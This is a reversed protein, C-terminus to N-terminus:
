QVVLKLHTQQDGMRINILYLGPALPDASLRQVSHSRIEMERNVVREGLCNFVEVVANGNVGSRVFVEGNESPNPFVQLAGDLNQVLGTFLDVVTAEVHDCGAADTVTVSYNGACLGTATAATQSSADDWAYSYPPTGGTVSVGATGDCTGNHDDTTLNSVSLNDSGVTATVPTRLSLCSPEQVEWDYFYYYYGSASTNTGTISAMGAVDIPYTAGANNRYLDITTGTVKIFYGTGPAVPFDLTVRSEGSPINVTTTQLVNGGDGDLLEITRNGAAGAYVKVSKLTFAASADFLLGRLDNNTFLGGGGLASDVPGGKVSAQSVLEQVYFTTTTTVSPGYTAGTGVKTGGTPADYWEYTGGNGSATLNATGSGCITDGTAAPGNPRNITVYSIKTISDQGYSNTVILKVTFSGNAEYTHQPNQQTSTNGDGFSWSWATPGVTSKDYFQIAGSCSNQIDSEFAAVPPASPPICGDSNQLSVRSGNIVGQMRSVQGKSFMVMCADNVYDMYNVYMDGNPGNSCTVHPFSPCGTNSTQQTPTDSVQDNGCNSDGWIHYLGLWHGVEHTG